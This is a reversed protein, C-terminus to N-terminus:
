TRIDSGFSFFHPGSYTIIGTERFIANQLATIDFYGVLIKSNNKILDYDIYELLQNSNYDWIVTMIVKVNKDAFADHLDEIRSVISTSNFSNNEEIHKGFSIKFGIQELNKIGNNIIKKTIFHVITLVHM